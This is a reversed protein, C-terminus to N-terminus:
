KRGLLLLRNSTTLIRNALLRLEPPDPFNQQLFVRGRLWLNRRCEGLASRDRPFLHSKKVINISIFGKQTGFAASTEWISLKVCPTLVNKAVAGAINHPPSGRAQVSCPIPTIGTTKTATTQTPRSKNIMVTTKSVHCAKHTFKKFVAIAADFATM